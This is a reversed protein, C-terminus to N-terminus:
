IGEVTREYGEVIIQDGIEFPQRFLLLLGALWNQLIDKFAFGIAVSSVGLGAILDGPRLTPVVITLALLVGLLVLVWKLFSGFVEGLNVRERRRAWSLFLRRVAVGVLYFVLLVVIAVVINPLLKIFGDIWGDVTEILSRPSIDIQGPRDTGVTDPAGPADGSGGAAADEPLPTPEGGAAAPADAPAEVPPTDTEPVDPAQAHATSM